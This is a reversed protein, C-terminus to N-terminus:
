QVGCLGEQLGEQLEWQVGCQVWCGAYGGSGLEEAGRQSQDREEDWPLDVDVELATSAAPTTGFPHPFCSGPTGNINSARLAPGALAASLVLMSIPM